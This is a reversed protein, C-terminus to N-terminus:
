AAPINVSINKAMVDDDAFLSPRGNLRGCKRENGEENNRKEALRWSASAKVGNDNAAAAAASIEENEGGHNESRSAAKM